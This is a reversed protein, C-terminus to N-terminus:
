GKDNLEQQLLKLLIFKNMKKNEGLMAKVENMKDLLEDSMGQPVRLIEEKIGDELSSIEIKLLKDESKKSAKALDVLNDLEHFARQLKEKFVVEEEDRLKELSKGMVVHCISNLWSNRDDLPGRLRILLANQQPNLMHEKLYGFRAAIKEKYEHFDLKREHLIETVLYSELRDLLHDFCGQLERIAQRLKGIYEDFVENSELLKQLEMHLAQPFEEFFLKEPDKAKEIAIRLQIAESSVRKTRKAYENLHHHFVMFPKLSEILSQNSVKKSSKLQLLERYKNYLDLKIGAVDFAKIFYKSADRTFFYLHSETLEPQYSENDDFLAYDDRKIFLFTPIWFDLFGPTLRFPKQKLLEYFDEVSRKESKTSAIFAESTQWLPLFSDLEPSCFVEDASDPQHIRTERLLTLYITKEPPFKDAAFGLNEEHYHKVLALFFPNKAANGGQLVHRNILENRFIPTAHYATECIHSLMKNLEMNSGIKQQKGLYFWDVNETFLAELVNRNLLTRQSKLINEFEAKAVKDDLHKSMAKSTREIDLLLERVNEVNRFQAYLIHDQEKSAQQLNASQEDEQFVLNIYGDTQDKPQETIPKESIVYEFFRPTGKKYTVSKANVPPFTFHDSLRNVISFDDDVEKSAESLAEDFDVDTGDILRYSNNYKTYIILKKSMLEHLCAKVDKASYRESLYATLFDDNLKAGKHGFVASMGLTKIIEQAIAVNKSIEIESRELGIGLSRWANAEKGTTWRIASYFELYLYDYIDAISLHGTQRDLESELFTFLSRENQGYQQLGVALMYGSFIDLPWLKPGVESLFDSTTDILHHQNQLDFARRVFPENVKGNAEIREAALFLLQEVPENFTLDKFRGKVKRWENREAETLFSRTYADFSQHLTSILVCNNAADAVFEALQQLFYIEKEPENKVAYEVFKGFEDIVLFVQKKGSKLKESLGEFDETSSLTNALTSRLSAYEGVIKIFRADKIKPIEFFNRGGTVHKEFAWLFSSKGTGYSGIITFARFGKDSLRSIDQAVKSANPTVIYTADSKEDRLINVSPSFKAKM